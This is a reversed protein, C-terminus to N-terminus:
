ILTNFTTRFTNSVDSRWKIDVKTMTSLVDSLIKKFATKIFKAQSTRSYKTEFIVRFM